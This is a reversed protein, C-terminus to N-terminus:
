ESLTKHGKSKPEFEGLRRCSPSFAVEFHWSITGGTRVLVGNIILVKAAETLQQQSFGHLRATSMEIALGTQWTKDLLHSFGQSASM